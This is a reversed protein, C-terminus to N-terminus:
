MTARSTKPWACISPMSASAMTAPTAVAVLAAEIMNPDSKQDSPLSTSAISPTTQGRSWRHMGRQTVGDYGTTTVTQISNVSEMM